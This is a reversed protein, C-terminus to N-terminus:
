IKALQKEKSLNMLFERKERMYSNILSLIGLFNLYTIKTYLTNTNVWTCVICSVIVSIRYNIIM